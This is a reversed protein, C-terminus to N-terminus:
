VKVQMRVREAAVRDGLAVLAERLLEALEEDDPMADFGKRLVSEAGVADGEALLGRSVDLIASRLRFEFDDRAAEFFSEYLTPFPVEGRTIELANLLLPRARVLAGERVAALAKKILEDARLLDVEVRDPNLAPTGEDTLIADAGMIERLRVVGMNRKKRALEPDEGGEAGGAIQVFEKPTLSRGIMQDAVMLGLLTRIRVGRLPTMEAGPLGIQITGLVSIRIRGADEGTPARRAARALALEEASERWLSVVEKELYREFRDLLATMFAHLSREAFWRLRLDLSRRIEPLLREVIGTGEWKSGGLLDLAAGIVLPDYLRLVPRLLLGRLRRELEEMDFAVPPAVLARLTEYGEVDVMLQPPWPGALLESANAISGLAIELLIAAAASLDNRNMLADITRASWAPDGRLLGIGVVWTCANAVAEPRKGPIENLIRAIGGAVWEPDCGFASEAVYRDLTVYLISEWDGTRRLDRDAQPTVELSRELDGIHTLFGVIRLHSFARSLGNSSLADLCRDYLRLRERLEEETDYIVLFQPYVHSLLNRRGEESIGESREISELRREIRLLLERDLRVSANQAVTMLCQYYPYINAVAPNAEIMRETEEWIIRPDYVSSEDLFLYSLATLRFTTPDNLRVRSTADLFNRIAATREAAPAYRMLSCRIMLLRLSWREVLREDLAHRSIEVLGGATEWLKLGTPREGAKDMLWASFLSREAGLVIAETPLTIRKLNERILTFPLLSYLPLDEGIVKLLRDPDVEAHDLLYKHLLTHTFALLPFESTPQPSSQVRAPIPGLGGFPTPSAGTTAIIGKRTLTRLTAQPDHLLSEVTERAFVEGLMAIAGAAELEDDRLHAVMGEALLEVNRRLLRMFPRLDEGGRWGAGHREVAGSDIAARIGSRLALGNGLTAQHLERIMAPDAEYDFLRRWIEAVDGQSLPPLEIRETLYGELLSRGKWELPRCLALVSVTEDGLASLLASLEQVSDADLLHIDEIVLLTPRLRCLRRVADIVSSRTGEPETRLLERGVNSHWLARAVLPILSLAAEPYLKAHVVTGGAEVVRAAVEELLRTKGIGAEAQVLAARLRQAEATGQWFTHLRALEVTRGGFPLFGHQLFEDLAKM